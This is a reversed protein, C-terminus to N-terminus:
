PRKRALGHVDAHLWRDLERIKPGKYEISLSRNGDKRGYPGRLKVRAQAFVRAQIEELFPRSASVLSWSYYGQKPVFSLCGDGDFCGLIFSAALHEPLTTPWQLTTTKAPTVGLRCLDSKMQASGIEFWARTGHARMAVPSLPALEDRVLEVLAADKAALAISVRNSQRGIWGDSALLGLVYAKVPSDMISFYDHRVAARVRLRAAKEEDRLGLKNARQNIGEESRGLMSALETVPVRGHSEALRADEKKTWPSRPQRTALACVSARTRVANRSRGLASAIEKIPKAGYHQRLYALEESAWLPERPMGRGSM